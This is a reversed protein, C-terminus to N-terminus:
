KKEIMDPNEYINGIIELHMKPYTFDFIHVGIEKYELLHKRGQKFIIQWRSFHTSYKIIGVDEYNTKVIDGEYILNGNKDKLGTCFSVKYNPNDKVYAKGCKDILVLEGNGLLHTRNEPEFKQKLENWVRFKFRDQM